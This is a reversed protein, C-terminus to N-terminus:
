WYVVETVGSVVLEDGDYLDYTDGTKVATYLTDNKILIDNVGERYVEGTVGDFRYINKLGSAADENYFYVIDGIRGAYLLYGDGVHVPPAGHQVYMVEFKHESRFYKRYFTGSKYFDNSKPYIFGGDLSDIDMREKIRGDEVLVSYFNCNTNSGSKIYYIIHDIVIIELDYGNEASEMFQPECGKKQIYYGKLAWDFYVATENDIEWTYYMKKLDERLQAAFSKFETISGNEYRLSIKNEYFVFSSLDDNYDQILSKINAKDSLKVTENKELDLLNLEFVESDYKNKWKDNFYEYADSDSAQYGPKVKGSFYVLKGDGIYFNTVNGAIKTSKGDKYAYLDETIDSRNKRLYYLTDDTLNFWENNVPNLAIDDCVLKVDNKDTRAIYLSASDVATSIATTYALFRYNPSLRFIGLVQPLMIIKAPWKNLRGYDSIIGVPEGGERQCYIVNDKAYILPMKNKNESTHRIPTKAIPAEIIEQTTTDGATNERDCSSTGIVAISIAVLLALKKM